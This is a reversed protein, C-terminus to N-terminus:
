SRSCCTSCAPWRWRAAPTSPSRARRRAGRRRRRVHQRHHRTFAVIVYILALWIFLMIALWARRGLSDKVIEAISRGSTACRPSSARSTTCPASSSSASASGSCARCGASSSAPSSRGPSRARGRRHRQLAPRAPLVAADARLRRRRQGGGGPTVARRRPPVAPRRLAGYFTYGLALVAVALCALLPLSMAHCTRPTLCAGASICLPRFRDVMPQAAEAAAGRDRRHQGPDAPHGRVAGSRRRRRPSRAAAADGAAAARAGRGAAARRAEGRGARGAVQVFGSVFAPDFNRAFNTAIAGPMVNVVRISDEELERRLTSSICNVAHKTAGYVGSDARQAAISSINVIHGEAGCQRMARVAAQCGALLALVNTELMARWEEPDGDVIPAPIRSARRQQGHHRAARDRAAARTSWSAAGAGRRADDLVVVTARGGAAEIRRRSAEMAERTRGALYVHAGARASSRPSPAASAARHAPSSPPGVPLSSSPQM